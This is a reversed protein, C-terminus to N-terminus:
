VRLVAFQLQCDSDQLRIRLPRAAAPFDHCELTALTLLDDSIRHGYHGELRYVASARPSYVLFWDRADRPDTYLPERQLPYQYETM